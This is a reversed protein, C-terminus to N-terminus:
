THSSDARVRPLLILWLQLHLCPLSSCLVTFDAVGSFCLWLLALGLYNGSESSIV